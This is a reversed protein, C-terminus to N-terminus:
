RAATLMDQMLALATGETIDQVSFNRAANAAGGAKNM